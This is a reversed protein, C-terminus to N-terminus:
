FEYRVGAYAAQGATNFNPIEQYDEDLANELRAHLTLSRFLRYSANVDVVVYDDIASGATDVADASARLNAGIRLRADTSAYSLGFNLLQEPRFPRQGGDPLQADNWTYNGRLSFGAALPLAGVLEVGRSTSEGGEQLYGSFGVLDFIILDDVSQEFWVLEVFAGDDAAWTVGLDYGESNEEVLQQDAAPPAAFPGNNYGIEYLSPARFGTGYTAKFKLESRGLDTVHAASVRYNTFDGFDDNDDWRLGATLTLAEAFRGQYEAFVGIQDRDRDVIGDDISETEHDAGFVLALAESRRWNGVYSLRELGGDAEFSPLGNTFIQRETTNASYSLDHSVSGTELEAAVRWSEQLFDDACDDTGFCNDYENAGEVRRVAAEVRLTDSADWGARGHLTTNDYGDDDRLATDDTRSNFGDTEFRAANLMFDAAGFDGGITGSLQQTGFRGAEAALRGGLGDQPTNTRISVIGGADAGYNLGQPGRLIEVREIGATLLQDLRPSVQPSSTDGVDIGDLLVMTRFGEEGRIRLSTVKGVGGNNSVAVSPQTRLIEPLSLFGRQEIEEQLLVSISTGTERLTMPVRSSTVVVEELVNQATAACASGLCLAAISAAIHRHMDHRRRVRADCAPAHRAPTVPRSTPFVGQSNAQYM